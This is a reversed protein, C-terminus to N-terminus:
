YIYIYFHHIFSLIDNCVLLPTFLFVVFMGASVTGSCYARHGPCVREDVARYAMGVAPSCNTSAERVKGHMFANHIHHHVSVRRTSNFYFFDCIITHISNSVWNFVLICYYHFMITFLLLLYIYCVYGLSCLQRFAKLSQDADVFILFLLGSM